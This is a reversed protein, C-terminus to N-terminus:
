VDWGGRGGFTVEGVGGGGRKRWWTVARGVDTPVGTIGAIGLGFVVM